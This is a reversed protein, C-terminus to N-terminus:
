VAPERFTYLNPPALVYITGDAAAVSRPQLFKGPEDTASYGGFSGLLTGDLETVLVRHNFTDVVYLVERNGRVAVCLGSPFHLRGYAPVDPGIQRSYEGDPRLVQIRHNGSDVVCVTGDSAVAIESPLNFEGPGRGYKGFACVCKGDRDFVQVRALRYTDADSVYIKGHADVAIGGINRFEGEGGFSLLHQGEGDFRSVTHGHAVVFSGDQDICFKGPAVRNGDADTLGIARQDAGLRVITQKEGCPGAFFARDRQSYVVSGFGQGAGVTMAKGTVEPVLSVSDNSLRVKRVVGLRGRQNRVRVELTNLGDHLPWEHDLEADHENRRSPPLEAWHGGDIRVLFSELFPAFTKM